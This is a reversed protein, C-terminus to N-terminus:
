RAATAEIEVLLDEHALGAVVLTTVAPATGINWRAQRIATLAPLHAADTVYYVVRLVDGIGLGGDELLTEVHTMAQHCQAEFGACIRGDADMGIQGSLCLVTEPRHILTGYAYIGRFSDPVPPMHTAALRSIM